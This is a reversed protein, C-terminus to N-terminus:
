GARGPGAIEGALSDPFRLEHPLRRLKVICQMRNPQTPSFRPRWSKAQSPLAGTRPPEVIRYSLGEREAYGMAAALTQFSLRIQAFPNDTATWGMLPEIWCPGRPEFELVWSGGKAVGAQM